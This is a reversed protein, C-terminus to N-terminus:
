RSRGLFRHVDTVAPAVRMTRLCGAATPGAARVRRQRVVPASDPAHTRTFCPACLAEQTGYLRYLFSPQECTDCTPEVTPMMSLEDSSVGGGAHQRGAHSRPQEMRGLPPGRSTM